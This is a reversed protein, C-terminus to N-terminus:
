GGQVLRLIVDLKTDLTDLKKDITELKRELRGLTLRDVTAENTIRKVDAGLLRVERIIDLHQQIDREIDAESPKVYPPNDAAM